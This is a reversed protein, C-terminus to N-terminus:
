VSLLLLRRLLLLSSSSCRVDAGYHVLMAICLTQDNRSAYHLPSQGSWAQTDVKAGHKLLVEMIDPWGDWAVHHLNVTGDDDDALNPDTGMDLM